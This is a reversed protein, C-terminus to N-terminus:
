ESTVLMTRTAEDYDVDFGLAIGLERLKFFNNGGINFATLDLTEGNVQISQSSKVTTASKDTGTTLEGGVSQYPQGTQVSIMRAAEDYSVSFQSGTGNLLAAMDRLKFYNAGNINYIETTKAAGDVLLGQSTPVVTLPEAPAPTEGGFHITAAALSPNTELDVSVASWQEESGAYYVDTLSDCDVFAAVAIWHVSTPIAVSKLNTCGDFSYLAINIVGEEIVASTIDTRYAGWPVLSAGPFPDMSGVGSVTLVGDSDFRWVVDEASGTEEAEGCVGSDVTDAAMAPIVLSLCLILALFLSIGRKKM